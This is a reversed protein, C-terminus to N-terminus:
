QLRKFVTLINEGGRRRYAVGDLFTKYFFVGLGGPRGARIKAELDPPPMTSPDFPIGDDRVEFVLRGGARWSALRLEGKEGPYAYIAINVCIEHLALEIRFAEKEDLGLGALRSRVFTRVGDLASLDARAVLERRATKTV